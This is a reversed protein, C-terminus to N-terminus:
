YKTNLSNIEFSKQLSHIMKQVEELGILIDHTNIDFLKQILLLQTELEFSSGVAINLFRSFDKKTGRGAGEAINSPISLASRTIQSSFNFKEAEPLLKSVEYTSEVIEMAKQWVKLEKYQHM